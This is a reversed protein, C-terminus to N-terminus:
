DRVEAYYHGHNLSGSHHVTGILSYKVNRNGEEKTNPNTVKLGLNIIDTYLVKEKIKVISGDIEQKFRLLQIVLYQPTKKVSITKTLKTPM